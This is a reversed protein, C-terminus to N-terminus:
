SAQPDLDFHVARLEDPHLTRAYQLARATAMDLRDVLVIVTHRTLVPAEAAEAAGEELQKDEVTYQRHLRILGFYMLPGVIVVVWAGENFKVTAFILVILATLFASVANVVVGRRWKPGRATLHHKIMGSGAMAFGTFVGIAYLAVLASLRAGTALILGLAVVTLVIIGNSFALRHGRRTLQKPLY